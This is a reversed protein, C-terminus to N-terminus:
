IKAMSVKLQFPDFEQNQGTKIVQKTPQSSSLFLIINWQLYSRNKTHSWKSQYYIQANNQMLSSYYTIWAWMLLKHVDLGLGFKCRRKRQGNVVRQCVGVKLFSVKRWGPCIRNNKVLKYTVRFVIWLHRWVFLPWDYQSVLAFPIPYLHTISPSPTLFQRLKCSTMWVGGGWLRSCLIFSTLCLCKSLKAVSIM